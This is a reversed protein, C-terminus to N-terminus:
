CSINNYGNQIEMKLASLRSITLDIWKIDAEIHMLKHDIILKKSVPSNMKLNTLEHMKSLHYMKQNDLYDAAEGGILISLVTKLYLTPQIDSSPEEMKKLWDSLEVNGNRTIQYKIRDPGGSKENTGNIEKVDGDRKLRSLTSYVQGYALKKDQGFFSDYLKKLDYGYSPKFDLMGLIAYSANM